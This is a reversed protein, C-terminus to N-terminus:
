GAVALTLHGSVGVKLREITKLKLICAFARVRQDLFCCTEKEETTEKLEVM